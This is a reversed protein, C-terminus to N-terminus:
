RELGGEKPNPPGRDRFKMGYTFTVHKEIEVALPDNWDMPTGGPPTSGPPPHPPPHPELFPVAPPPPELLPAAPPPPSPLPAKPTSWSPPRAPSGFRRKPRAPQEADSTGGITLEVMPRPPVTEEMIDTEVVDDGPGDPLEDSAAELNCALREQEASDLSRSFEVLSDLLDATAQGVHSDQQSDQSMPCGHAQASMAALQMCLYSRIFSWAPLGSAHTNPGFPRPAISSMLVIASSGSPKCAIKTPLTLCAASIMLREIVHWTIQHSAGRKLTGTAVARGGDFM